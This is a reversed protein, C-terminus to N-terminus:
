NAANKDRNKNRIAVGHQLIDVLSLFLKMLTDDLEVPDREICLTDLVIDLGDILDVM